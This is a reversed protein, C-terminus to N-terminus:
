QQCQYERPPTTVGQHTRTDGVDEATGQEERGEMTKRPQKSCTSGVRCQDVVSSSRRQAGSRHSEGATGLGTNHQTHVSPTRQTRGEEACCKELTLQTRFRQSNLPQEMTCARSAAVSERVVEAALLADKRKGFLEAVLLRLKVDQHVVGTGSPALRETRIRLLTLEIPRKSRESTSQQQESRNQPAKM